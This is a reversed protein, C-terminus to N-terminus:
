QYIIIFGKEEIMRLDRKGLFENISERSHVDLVRKIRIEFEGSDPSKRIEVLEASAIEKHFNAFERLVVVAEARNISGM